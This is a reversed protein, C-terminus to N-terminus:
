RISKYKALSSKGALRDLTISKIFRDIDKDKIMAQKFEDYNTVGPLSFAIKDINNVVTNQTNGSVPAIADDLGLNDRIFDAPNNAMSWLNASAQANLVGDGKALPTLIAGDSRRMIFETGNEQTWALEDKLLEEIGSAYGTFNKRGKKGNLKVWGLDASKHDEDYTRAANWSLRYPYAKGKQIGTVYLENKKQTTGKKKAKSTYGGYYNTGSKLTVKDGINIKSDDQKTGSAEPSYMANPVSTSADKDWRSYMAEQENIVGDVVSSTASSSYGGTGYMGVANSSSNTGNVKAIEAKLAAIASQCEAIDVKDKSLGDGSLELSEELLELIAQKEENSANQANALAKKLDLEKNSKNSDKKAATGTASGLNETTVAKNVKANDSGWIDQNEGSIIYGVANAADQITQSIVTTSNNVENIMDQMLQDINDLRENLIEEYEDYMEGLLDGQDSIYKDYETEELDAKAEELDVKLQQVKQKAEESDDGAYAAMQKELKAIDETQSKVKKQYDYLDKQSELAENYKDIREQLADLELNIGEEVMDRIADKEQEAALISEQQAEVMEQRREMFEKNDALKPDAALQKDLRELEKAYEDAKKMNIDYNEAHLGMTAMGEATLQGTDENYLKKNSMLEMLFETETIINSIKDQLLDFKEWEAERISQEYELIATESEEIALTVENIQSVMEWWQESGKAITGSNVADDLAKKMEKKQNELMKIEKQENNILANYQKASAIHGMAESQAIHEELMSNAHDFQTLQSEFKTVVLEFQQAYLEALSEGLEDIADKCDLAKEDKDKIPESCWNFM